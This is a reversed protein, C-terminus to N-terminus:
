NEIVEIDQADAKAPYSEAIDNHTVKVKSGIKINESSIGENLTFIFDPYPSDPSRGIDIHTSTVKIVFGTKTNGKSIITGNKNDMKESTREEKNVLLAKKDSNTQWIAIFVIGLIVLISVGISLLSKKLM